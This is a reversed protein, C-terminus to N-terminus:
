ALVEYHGQKLLKILKQDKLEKLAYNSSAPSKGITKLYAQADKSTFFAQGNKKLHALLMDSIKGETAQVLNGNKQQANIVPQPPTMSHVLGASVQLFQALKRDDVFVEIRFM